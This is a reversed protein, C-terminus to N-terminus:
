FTIVLNAGVTRTSPFQAVEFGQTIDTGSLTGFEPDFMPWPSWIFLNRGYLGLTVRDIKLRKLYRAPITYDIRAERFKIFDTSFSSGEANDVGMMSRYYEDIDTAVADNKRYGTVHGKADLVELVGNGIIGNYRGPVTVQLKGQEVMKYHMLSHGVAGWQGDFLASVRFNKFSFANQISLKGKPITNGIFVVGETIKANGTVPDFVVQGDPSRVFGRGYMDGMSGGVRAVIQGSGVAGTGLVVSSDPIEMIRNRNSSFTVNVDWKFGDKAKAKVPTGNLAIELGINRVKGANIIEGSYGSSRDIISQLIQDKTNGMYAAIDLGLRRKFMQLEAGVEYAVTRLPRLDPKVLVLPASYYSGNAYSDYMPLPGYGYSTRYPVTGGSGVNSFSARLKAYDISLPLTLAESLIYSINVSPYTFGVSNNRYPNALTSTWDRRATLEAYFYDKYAANIIAYLSSYEFMSRYPYSQVVTESSDLTYAGPSLLGDARLDERRYRNKTVSGGLTGKLDWDSSLQKKYSLLFDSTYEQSTIDQTRYSGRIMKSGADWPRKQARDDMTYDASQRVMLSLDKTFDYSVQVNGTFNNRKYENLFEYAIAYPNEPFTSYPYFIKRGEQGNLWYNKLWDIDANPQWFIYWYMISQNGYGAGPINDSSKNTYGGKVSVKLKDTIKTDSSLAFTNRTYGTNPTIWSNRVDTYSLRLNSKKWSRALTLSNTYTEGNQFYGNVGHKGSYPRWLTANQADRVQLGPGFQNTFYQGEFKPGYASSSGTNTLLDAQGDLGIGYEYQLDPWRNVQEFAFNSNFSVKWKSKDRNSGSKTTIIIAGNAGRQGYLAAAGPGKLITVSEIDEPNIDNLGSGYDAPMNDSGTGYVQDSANASRRAGGNNVVVGDVVILAENEGTLNNEGRLIIKNSGDPGSNSRILNLGAVKGSLADTWNNSLANTLDENELTTTAFGLERPKRKIGLATTIQVNELEGTGPELEINLTTRDDMILQRTSYDVGSFTLKEGTKVQISFQGKDNTMTGRSSAEVQVSILAIPQKTKANKVTGTVTRQQAFTAVSVLISLLVVLLKRQRFHLIKNLFSM